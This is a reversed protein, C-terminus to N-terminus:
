KVIEFWDSQFLLPPKSENQPESITIFMRHRGEKVKDSSTFFDCPIKANLDTINFHGIQSISKFSGLVLFYYNNTEPDNELQFNVESYKYGDYHADIPFGVAECPHYVTKDTPVVAQVGSNIFPYYNKFIYSIWVALIALLLFTSFLLTKNKM